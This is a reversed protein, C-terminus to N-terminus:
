TKPVIAERQQQFDVRIANIDEESTSQPDLAKLVEMEQEYLEIMKSQIAPDLRDLYDRMFGGSELFAIQSQREALAYAILDAISREPNGSQSGPEFEGMRRNYAAPALQM